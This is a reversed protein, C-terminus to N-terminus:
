VPTLSINKGVKEPFLHPELTRLYLCYRVNPKSGTLKVRGMVAEERGTSNMCEFLLRLRATRAKQYNERNLLILMPWPASIQSLLGQPSPAEKKILVAKGSESSSGTNKPESGGAQQTTLM